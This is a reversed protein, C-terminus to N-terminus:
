RPVQRLQLVNGEPDHGDCVTAGHVAWERGPPDLEGGLKAAADRASAISMVPFVLKIATDTRRVPPASLVITSALPEPIAVVVLEFAASAPVVHDHESRVTALGSVEAYFTSLRALDKAYVVAGARQTGVTSPSAERNEALQARYARFLDSVLTGDIRMGEENADEISMNLLCVNRLTAGTLDANDFTAERLNTDVCVSARLDVDVFRSNPLRAHAHNLAPDHPM